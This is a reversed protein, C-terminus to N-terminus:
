ERRMLIGERILEAAKYSFLLKSDSIPTIEANHKTPNLCFSAGSIAKTEFIYANGQINILTMEYNCAGETNFFGCTDGIQCNDPVSVTVFRDSIPNNADTGSTTGEWVGTISLLEPTTTVSMTPTIPTPIIPSLTDAPVPTLTADIPNSQTAM